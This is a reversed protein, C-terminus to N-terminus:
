NPPQIVPGTFGMTSLRQTLNYAQRQVFRWDWDDVPGLEPYKAQRNRARQESNVSIRCQLNGPVSAYVHLHILGWGSVTDRHTIGDRPPDFEIRREVVLGKMAPYWLAFAFNHRRESICRRVREVMAATDAYQALPEDGDSEAARVIPAEPKFASDALASFDQLSLTTALTVSNFTRREQGVLMVDSRRRM